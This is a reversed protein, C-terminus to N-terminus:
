LRVDKVVSGRLIFNDVGVQEKYFSKMLKFYGKFDRYDANPLAYSIKGSIEQVNNVNKTSEPCRKQEYNTFGDVGQTDVWCVKIGNRTLSSDLLLMDAPAIDGDNM